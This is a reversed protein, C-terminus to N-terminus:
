AETGAKALRRRHFFKTIESVPIITLALGMAVLFELWDKGQTFDFPTFGFLDSL